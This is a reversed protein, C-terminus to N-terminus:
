QVSHKEHEEHEEDEEDTATTVTGTMADVHLHVPKGDKMADVDFHRGEREISHVNTYGASEVSAKIQAETLATDAGYAPVAAFWVGTFLIMALSKM